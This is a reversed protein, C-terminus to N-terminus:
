KEYSTLFARPGQFAWSTHAEQGQAATCCPAFPLKIQQITLASLSSNLIIRYSSAPLGNLCIILKEPFCLNLNFSKEPVNRSRQPSYGRGQFPLM